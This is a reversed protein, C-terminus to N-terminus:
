AKGKARKEAVLAHIASMTRQREHDTLHGGTGTNLQDRM